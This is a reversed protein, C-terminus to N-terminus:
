FDKVWYQEAGQLDGAKWANGTRCPWNTVHLKGLGGIAVLVLGSSGQEKNM